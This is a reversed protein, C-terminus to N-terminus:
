TISLQDVRLLGNKEDYEKVVCNLREGVQGGDKTTLVYKKGLQFM